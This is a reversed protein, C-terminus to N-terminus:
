NKFKISEVSIFTQIGKPIEVVKPPAYIRKIEFSFEFLKRDPNERLEWWEEAEEPTILHSDRRNNFQRISIEVPKDLSIIGWCLNGSILFLDKEAMNEFARSKIIMKKKGLIISRAHPEVLYIGGIHPPKFKPFEKFQQVEAEDPESEQTSSASIIDYLERSQPKMEDRSFEYDMKGAEVRKIIELYTRKAFDVIEDKSFRISKEPDHFTAWYAYALRMENGLQQNTAKVPDYAKIDEVYKEPSKPYVYLSAATDIRKMGPITSDTALLHEKLSKLRVEEIKRIFRHLGRRKLATIVRSESIIRFYAPISRLSFIFNKIELRKVDKKKLHKTIALELAEADAQLDASVDVPEKVKEMRKKVDLLDKALKDLETEKEAFIEPREVHFSAGDTAIDIEPMPVDEFIPEAKEKLKSLLKQDGGPFEVGEKGLHTVIIRSISPYQAIGKFISSIEAHGIPQKSEKHYRILPRSIASGDCIIAHLGDFFPRRDGGRFGIFDTAIGLSVGSDHDLRFITMPCRKSHLAFFPTIVFDGVRFPDKYSFIKQVKISEKFKPSLASETDKSMWLPVDLNHLQASVHDKHCHSILIADTIDAPLKDKSWPNVEGVDILIKTSGSSILICTNYKHVKSSEEIMGKTGFFKITIRTNSM